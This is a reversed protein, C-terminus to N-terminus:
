ACVPFIVTSKTFEHQYLSLKPEIIRYLKNYMVNSLITIPRVQGRRQLRSLCKGAELNSSFHQNSALTGAFDRKSPENSDGTSTAYSTKFFHVFAKMIGYEGGLNKNNYQM